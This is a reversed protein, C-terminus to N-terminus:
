HEASEILRAGEEVTLEGQAIKELIELRTHRAPAAPQGQQAAPTTQLHLDGSLSHIQMLAGGAGITASRFRPTYKHYITSFASNLQGSLSTMQVECGTEVPLHLWTDGSVSHFNYPGGSLSTELFLDGSVTSADVSTFRCAALHAQGSVTKLRLGGSLDQGQLNASVSHIDLHGELRGLALEGSVTRVAMEGRLGHLSANSSVVGLDVDCDRPVVIDFLIRCPRAGTLNPAPNARMRATARVVGSLEQQIEILMAHLDGSDAEIVARVHINEHAGSRIVVSGRINEVVLHGGDVVPFIQEMIQQNVTV